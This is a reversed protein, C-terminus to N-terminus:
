EGDSNGKHLSLFYTYGTSTLRWRKKSDDGGNADEDETLHLRKAAKGIIDAPNKPMEWRAKKYLQLIEDTSASKAQNKEFLYMLVALFRDNHNELNFGAAWEAFTEPLPMPMAQTASNPRAPQSTGGLLDLTALTLTVLDADESVGLTTVQSRARKVAEQVQEMSINM